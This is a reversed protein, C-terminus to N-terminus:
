PEDRLPVFIPLDGTDILILRILVVIPEVGYTWESCGNANCAQLRIYWTGNGLDNIWMDPVNGECVIRVNSTFGIDSAVQVRYLTTNGVAPWNLRVRGDSDTTGGTGTAPLLISPPTFPELRVEV